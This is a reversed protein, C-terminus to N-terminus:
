GSRSSTVPERSSALREILDAAVVTGPARRLREGAAASRARLTENTLLNDLAASLEQASCTYTPLRIGYGTEQVRRANDHQDWFIPMVLMPKGFWM